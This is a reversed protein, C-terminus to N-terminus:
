LVTLDKVPWNSLFLCNKISNLQQKKLYNLTELMKKSEDVWEDSKSENMRQSKWTNMWGKKWECVSEWENVSEKRENVFEYVSQGM